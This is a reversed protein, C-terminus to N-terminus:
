DQSRGPRDVKVVGRPRGRLRVAPGARPRVDGLLDRPARALRAAQAPAILQVRRHLLVGERQPLIGDDDAAPLHPGTQLLTTGPIM